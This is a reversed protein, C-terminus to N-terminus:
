GFRRSLQGGVWGGLFAMIGAPLVWSGSQVASLHLGAQLFIPLVFFAGFEGMALVITNILGYRFGRHRLDSFDFVVAQGARARALEVLVFTVLGFVGITLAVPVISFAHVPWRWGGITQDGIPKVWGYRGAEIIGFVLGLLGITVAVVGPIDIGHAREDSSERVYFIAAIIAVPAIIVNIRFAWRWSAY